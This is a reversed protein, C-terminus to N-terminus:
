KALATRAGTKLDIRYLDDGEITFLWYSAVCMFKAKGFEAKGLQKWVGTYPDTEYLAGNQEVTYMQRNFESAAVITDKWDGAKGVRSWTGDSLSIRYLSGDAELTFLFSDGKFMFRTNAFDAKGMQVWEGTSLDTRYLAGSKEISYLTEHGHRVVAITDKWDGDKGVQSWTGDSRSIRYLSGDTEITFLYLTDAVLFETDAFDPKGLQVKKGSNMDVRYLAGSKEITHLGDWGAIAITDSWKGPNMAPTWEGAGARGSQLSSGALMLVFLCFCITLSRKLRRTVFAAYSTKCYGAGPYM